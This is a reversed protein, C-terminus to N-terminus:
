LNMLSRDLEKFRKEIDFASHIERELYKEVKQKQHIFSHHKGSVIELNSIDNNFRNGDRHHIQLRKPLYYRKAGTKRAISNEVVVRHMARWFTYTKEETWLKIWKYGNTGDIIYECRDEYCTHIGRNVEWVTGNKNEVLRAGCTECYKM